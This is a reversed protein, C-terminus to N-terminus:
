RWRRSVGLALTGDTATSTLGVRASLDLQLDRTIVWATGADFYSTTTQSRNLPLQEAAYEVYFRTAATIPHGVTVGFLSTWERDGLANVDYVIGPMVGIGFGAPLDWEGVARFSPRVGEGRFPTSGSPLDGHILVAVSPRRKEGDVLHWKIGIAADSLGDVAAAGTLTARTYGDSELRLEVTRTVGLRFLTPTTVTRATVGGTTIWDTAGSTELQFVKKGVVDSSEVYDPRDTVIPEQAALPRACVALGAMLVFCSARRM